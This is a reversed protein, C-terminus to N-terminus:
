TVPGLATGRPPEGRVGTVVLGLGAVLFWAATLVATTAWAPSTFPGPRFVGAACAVAPWLGLAIGAVGLVRQAAHGPAETCLMSAGLAAMGAGILMLSVLGLRIVVVQNAQFAAFLAPAEGPVASGIAKAIRLAVFGDFVFAVTWATAGMALAVLGLTGFRTEGLARLRLAMGVGGLAWCVPGALIGAHILEWDSHAAVHRVFNRFFEDSGIAGLRTDTPPHQAGGWVFAVSGAVLLLGCVLHFLRESRAM